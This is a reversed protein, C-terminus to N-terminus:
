SYKKITSLNIKKSNFLFEKKVDEFVYLVDYLNVINNSYLQFNKSLYHNIMFDNFNDINYFINNKLIKNTSFISNNGIVSNFLDEKLKLNDKNIFIYKSYKSFHKIFISSFIPIFVPHIMKVFDFLEKDLINSILLLDEVYHTRTLNSKKYDLFHTSQVRFKLINQLLNKIEINSINLFSVLFFFSSLDAIREQLNINNNELASLTIHSIEHFFIFYFSYDFDCKLLDNKSLNINFISEIKEKKQYYVRSSLYDGVSVNIVTYNFPSLFKFNFEKKQLFEKILDLQNCDYVNFGAKCKNNALQNFHLQYYNCDSKKLTM